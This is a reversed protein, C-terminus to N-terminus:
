FFVKRTKDTFYLFMSHTLPRIVFLIIKDEIGRLASQAPTEAREPTKSTSAKLSPNEARFPVPCFNASSRGM